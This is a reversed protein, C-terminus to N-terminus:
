GDRGVRKKGSMQARLTELGRFQLQKIAGESRGLEAAIERISKGEAFRMSIVRCQGVPLKEVLRFLHAREEIEDLNMEVSLEPPDGVVEKANDQWRDHILNAGIRLLWAAFPVGRYDFNPLHALARQFVESTLDEAAARDRVRRVIFAYVREFNEEYLEAFRSPDKQAADVLLREKAEERTGKSALKGVAM